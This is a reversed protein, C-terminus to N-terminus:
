NASLRRNVLRRMLASEAKQLHNSVTSAACDLRDAVDAVSGTRPVDYYGCDVAAAIVELQRDTLDGAISPYRRDYEGVEHVTSKIAPPLHELLARLDAGAGVITMRMAADEDYVIPPVVVLNLESFARRFLRDEARTEQCVYVYCAEDDIEVLDYSRVSDTSELRDVYRDRDTTEVYFLEYEVDLDPALNWARLEDRVVADEHRILRQMPHLMRDPQRFAVDLYKM